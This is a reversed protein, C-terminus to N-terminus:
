SWAAAGDAAVCVHIEPRHGTAAEYASGVEACFREIASAQVLNVTCGGFGGGTMRAGHVGDVAEALRVMLDLEDCSVEYDDRLSQHSQRMLGGFRALDAALLAEAAAAVRANESVVHRCRRWLLPDMVAAAEDLMAQTVDRLTEVQPYHAALVRVGGECQERRRNYEGGSLQHRVMTNCVVLQTVSGDADKRGADLPLLRYELSRCDLLLAHGARGCASAFQDMIGCRTGVYQNEAQQCLAALQPGPPRVGALDCLALAVALELAASSSLGSGLPVEGHVLLDAGAFPIGHERLVCAVGTAYDSWHTTGARAPDARRALDRADVTVTEAFNTSHV